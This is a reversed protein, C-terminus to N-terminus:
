NKGFIEKYLNYKEWDIVFINSFDGEGLKLMGTPFGVVHSDKGTRDDNLKLYELTERYETANAFRFAISGDPNYAITSGYESGPAKRRTKFQARKKIQGVSLSGELGPSFRRNQGLIYTWCYLEREM